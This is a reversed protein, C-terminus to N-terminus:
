LLTSQGKSSLARGHYTRLSLFHFSRARIADWELSRSCATMTHLGLPTHGRRREGREKPRYAAVREAGNAPRASAAPKNSFKTTLLVETRGPM